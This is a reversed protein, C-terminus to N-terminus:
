IGDMNWSNPGLLTLARFNWERQLASIDGFYRQIGGGGSVGNDHNGRDGGVWLGLGMLIERVLSPGWTCVM